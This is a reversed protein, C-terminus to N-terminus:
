RFHAKEVLQLDSIMRLRQWHASLAPCNDALWATDMWFCLMWLYIDLVCPTDGCTFARRSHRALEAEFILFHRRVYATAATAVAPTCAPDATYRDPFLERLMGEYVNAQFFALWRDHWARLSTGPAPALGAAPFSDALHLLIAPGETIITGDPHILIPVQGRPNIQHLAALEAETRPRPTDIPEWQADCLRLAAEIAMSGTQRRGFLRYGM